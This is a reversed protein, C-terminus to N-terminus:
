QPAETVSGQQMLQLSESDISKGWVTQEELRSPYVTVEPITCVQEPYAFTLPFFVFYYACRCLSM